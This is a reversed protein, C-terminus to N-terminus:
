PNLRLRLARAGWAPVSLTFTGNSSTAILNGAFFDELVTAAFGSVSFTATRATPSANTLVLLAESGLQYAIAHLDPHDLSVSRVSGQTLHPGLQAIELQVKPLDVAYTPESYPFKTGLDHIGFFLIGTVGAALTDYSLFRLEAQTPFRDGAPPTPTYDKWRNAQHYFWRAKTPFLTKLWRAMKGPSALTCAEEGPVWVTSHGSPIPYLDGSVVDALNGISVIDSESWHWLTDPAFNIWVLRGPAAARIARVLKRTDELSYGANAPEDIAFGLFYRNGKGDNFLQTLESTLQSESSAKVHEATPQGVFFYIQRADAASSLEKMNLQGGGAPTGPKVYEYYAVVLNGGSTKIDDLPHHGNAKAGDPWFYYGHPTIRAENVYLIGSKIQITVQEEQPPICGLPGLACCILTVACLAALLLPRRLSSRAPHEGTTTPQNLKQNQLPNM